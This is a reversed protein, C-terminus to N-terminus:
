HIPYAYFENAKVENVVETVGPVAKVALGAERKINENTATGTLTVRGASHEFEVHISPNFPSAAGVCDNLAARVQTEIITQTLTARSEPNEQFTEHSVLQGIFEICAVISIRETNLVLDYLAPDRWDVGFLHQMTKEHAKDNQTIEKLATDYDVEVREMITRVRQEIPACVRVRVVHTIPRLVYSAGWGRILVNGRAAVELIEETTYLSLSDEDIGWREFLGAKGELFRNVLGKEVDMKDAVNEVLEHQIIDLNLRDALGLAVDKGSSGMERTMAVVPM